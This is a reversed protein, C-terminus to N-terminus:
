LYNNITKDIGQLLDELTHSRNRRCIAANESCLLCSRENLNFDKRSIQNGYEDFVDFDFIRGLPHTDEIHVTIKKTEIPDRNISIFGEVGTSKDLVLKNLIPNKIDRLISLLCEIGENHIKKYLNSNKIDGPTNLTFSILTCPYISLLEKQKNARAERSDLIEMILGIDVNNMEMFIELKKLHYLKV